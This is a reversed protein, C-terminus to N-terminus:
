IARYRGYGYYKPRDDLRVHLWAVGAGATSLWLPKPGLRRKVASGVKRLLEHRQADPAERLFVALHGYASVPGCPCPVVLIADGGLNRFEVVTETGCNEFHEQFASWDPRCVLEPSDLVVFEFPRAASAVTVPPAEWRFAAFPIEALLAIFFRRFDADSQLHEVVDAFSIDSPGRAIRIKMVRDASEYEIQKAWM